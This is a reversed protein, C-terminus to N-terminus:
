DVIYIVDTQPPQVVLNAGRIAKIFHYSERTICHVVQFILGGQRSEECPCIFNATTTGEFSYESM